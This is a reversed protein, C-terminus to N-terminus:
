PTGGTGETRFCASGSGFFECFTGAALTSAIGVSLLFPMLAILLKKFALKM